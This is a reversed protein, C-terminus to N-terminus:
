NSGANIAPSANRILAAEAIRSPSTTAGAASPVGSKETPSQAHIHRTYWLPVLARGIGYLFGPYQARSSLESRDLAAEYDSAARPPPGAPRHEQRQRM